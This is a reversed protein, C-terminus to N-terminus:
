QYNILKMLERGFGSNNCDYETIIDAANLCSEAGNCMCVGIGADKIMPLDNTGDGFAVANAIDINLIDCMKKLAKCKVADAINIEINSQLSTSIYLLGPYKEKLMEIQIERERQSKFYYQIKQVDTNKESIFAKLEPVPTRKIKMTKAYNKDPLYDFMTDYHNASMYGHNDIYADYVIPLTDGYSYIDLALDKPINVDYLYTDNLSDYITAGNVLIFYRCLEKLIPPINDFLRGTCPVIYIGHEKAYKLAEINEDSIKKDKDLLTFDLDFAVLKIENM